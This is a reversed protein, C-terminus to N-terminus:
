VPRELFCKLAGNPCGKQVELVMDLAVLLLNHRDEGDFGFEVGGLILPFNNMLGIVSLELGVNLLQKFIDKVHGTDNGPNFANEALITM